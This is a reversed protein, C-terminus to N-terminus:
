APKRRRWSVLGAAGVALLLVSSPEPVSAASLPAAGWAGLLIGLDLGDVLTTNNLEGGASNTTTGWNGLLIGLDLGDVIGDSNVDPDNGGAVTRSGPNDDYGFAHLTVSNQVGGPDRTIEMWGYHKVGFIGFQLGIFGHSEAASYYTGPSVSAQWVNFGAKKFNAAGSPGFHAPGAGGVVDGAGLIEIWQSGPESASITTNYFSHTAPAAITDAPNFYLYPNPYTSNSFVALNIDFAGASTNTNSVFGSYYVYYSSQATMAGNVMNINLSSLVLTVDAIDHVVESANATSGVTVVTATAAASYAALRKAHKKLKKSLRASKKNTRKM